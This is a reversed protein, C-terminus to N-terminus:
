EKAKERIIRGTVVPLNTTECIVGDWPYLEIVKETTLVKAKIRLHFIISFSQSSLIAGNSLSQQINICLNDLPKARPPHSWDLWFIPPGDTMAPWSYIVPAGGTMEDWVYNFNGAVSELVIESTSANLFELTVRILGKEFYVSSYVHCIRSPSDVLAERVESSTTRLNLRERWARVGLGSLFVGLALGIWSVLFAFAVGAWSYTAWFWNWTSSAWALVAAGCWIAFLVGQWARDFLSLAANANKARNYFVTWKAWMGAISARM